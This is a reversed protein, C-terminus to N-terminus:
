PLLSFPIVKDKELFLYVGLGHESLDRGVIILIPEPCNYNENNMIKKMEKIDQKSPRNEGLPHYHWEGLYFTRNENWSRDLLDQLGETGRYFTNFSSRSDSTEKTILTIHASKQDHSYKGILIGGTEYPHSLNCENFLFTILESNMMIRMSNIESYYLLNSM